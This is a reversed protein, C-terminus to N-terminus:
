VVDIWQRVAGSRANILAAAPFAVPRRSRGDDPRQYKLVMQALGKRCCSSERWAQTPPQPFHCKQVCSRDFQACFNARYAVWPRVLSALILM